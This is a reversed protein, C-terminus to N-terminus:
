NESVVNQASDRKNKLKLFETSGEIGRFQAQSTGPESPVRFSVIYIHLTNGQDKVGM